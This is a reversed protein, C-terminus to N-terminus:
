RYRGHHGGGDGSFLFQRQAPPRVPWGGKGVLDDDRHCARGVYVAAELGELLCGVHLSDRATQDLPHLRVKEIRRHLPRAALPQEVQRPVVRCCDRGRPARTSQDGAHPRVSPVLRHLQAPAAEGPHSRTRIRDDLGAALFRHEGGHHVERVGLQLARREDREAHERPPAELQSGPLHLLAGNVQEERAHVAMERTGVQLSIPAFCKAEPRAATSQALALHDAAQVRDDVRHPAM